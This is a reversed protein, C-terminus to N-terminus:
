GLLRLMDPQGTKCTVGGDVILNHGVVFSAEDAALFAIAAAVEEPRGFRGVPTAVAYAAVARENSTMAKSMPTDIAGPSVANCRIGESALEMAISRTFNLAGAKGANYAAMGYDAAVADVSLVNVMATQAALGLAITTRLHPVAAQCVNFVGNLNVDITRQWHRPTLNMTPAVVILGASNVVVDLRGHRDSCFRLAEEVEDRNTVDARCFSVREGISVVPEHERRSAVVVSAGEDHFRRATALGIGSTGGFVIAVRGAFRLRFGADGSM